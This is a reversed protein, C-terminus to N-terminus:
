QEGFTRRLEDELAKPAGQPLESTQLWDHAIRACEYYKFRWEKVEKPDDYVKNAPDAYDNGEMSYIMKHEISNKSPDVRRIYGQIDDPMLALLDPLKRVIHFGRHRLEHAIVGHLKTSNDWTPFKDRNVTITGTINNFRAQHNDGFPYMGGRDHDFRAPQTLDSFMSRAGKDGALGLWLIGDVDEPLGKAIRLRALNALFHQWDIQQGRNWAQDNFELFRMIYKHLELNQTTLLQVLLM